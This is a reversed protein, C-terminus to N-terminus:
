NKTEKLAEDIINLVNTIWADNSDTEYLQIEKLLNRLREVEESQSQECYLRIMETTQWKHKEYNAAIWNSIKETEEAKM